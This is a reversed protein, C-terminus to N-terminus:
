LERRLWNIVCTTSSAPRVGAHVRGRRGVYERLCTLALDLHQHKPHHLQKKLHLVQPETRKGARGRRTRAQNARGLVHTSATRIRQRATARRVRCAKSLSVVGVELGRSESRVFISMEDAMQGQGPMGKRHTAVHDVEMHCNRRQAARLTSLVAM